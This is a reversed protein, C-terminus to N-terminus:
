KKAGTKGEKVILHEDIYKIGKGKYVDPVRFSRIKAATEGVLQKDAGKVLIQNQSPVEITIGAPEEMEIPHSYGLNFTVKNGQKQAKYGVGNIQLEKTFGESVGVVMNNILARTLGHLARHDKDDSPREVTIINGDMKVTMDPHIDMELTADKGKVTIHQGDIKVDVGAPVTIPKRGIRSM